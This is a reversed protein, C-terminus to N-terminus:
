RPMREDRPGSSRPGTTAARLDVPESIPACRLDTWDTVDGLTHFTRQQVLISKGQVALALQAEIVDEFEFTTPKGAPNLPLEPGRSMHGDLVVPCFARYQPWSLRTGGAAAAAAGVDLAFYEADAPDWQAPPDIRELLVSGTRSGARASFATVRHWDGSWTAQWRTDGQAVAADPTQISGPHEPAATAAACVLEAQSILLPGSQSVARHVPSSPDYRNLIEAIRLRPQMRTGDPGICLDATNLIALEIVDAPFRYRSLEGLLDRERAEFVAGTHHAVLNTVGPPIQANLGVLHDAGDVPHFRTSALASAYGIDHTWAAWVVAEVNRPSLTRALQEALRAVGITHKWRAPLEASLANEALMRAVSAPANM